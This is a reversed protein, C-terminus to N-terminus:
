ETAHLSEAETMTSLQPYYINPQQKSKLNWTVKMYRCVTSSCLWLIGVHCMDDM